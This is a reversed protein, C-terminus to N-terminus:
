IKRLLVLGEFMRISNRTVSAKCPSVRKLHGPRFRPFRPIGNGLNGLNGLNGCPRILLDFDFFNQLDFGLFDDPLVPCTKHQVFSM